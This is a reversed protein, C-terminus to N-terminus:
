LAAGACCTALLVPAGFTASSIAELSWAAPIAELSWAAPIAELSRTAPIAELSRAPITATTFPAVKNGEAHRPTLRVTGVRASEDGHHAAPAVDFPPVDAGDADPARRRDDLDRAADSGVELL